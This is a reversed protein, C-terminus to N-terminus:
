DTKGDKWSERDWQAGSLRETSERERSRKETARAVAEDFCMSIGSNRDRRHDAGGDWTGRREGPGESDLKTGTEASEDEDRHTTETEAALEQHTQAGKDDHQRHQLQKRFTFATLKSTQPKPPVAPVAKANAAKRPSRKRPAKSIQDSTEEESEKSETQEHQIEDPRQVSTSKELDDGGEPSLDGEVSSETKINEDEESNGESSEELDEHREAKNKDDIEECEGSNKELDEKREAENKDQEGEKTHEEDVNESEESYEKLDQEGEKAHEEHIDEFEGGNKELDQKAEEKSGDKANEECNERNEELDEKREAENKDQEGEKTHEEDVRESEGTNGELDEQRKAEQEGEKTHEEDVNESEESNEKLDQEGEKAHEEHIDEFEGGNKELDQKAEEKSGDKANEECDGSNEELDEKREAENKDQEGEKTHEEDVRESEGSNGELDEQRKAEQEEEKAHEEDGEECEGSNKEPDLRKADEKPGDEPNEKCDESNEELDEQREAKNGEKPGDNAHEECERNNEALYEQREAENKDQEEEKAHEEDRRRKNEGFDEKRETTNVQKQEENGDSCEEVSGAKADEEVDDCKGEGTDTKNCEEGENEEMNRVVKMTEESKEDEVTQVQETKTENIIQTHEEPPQDADTIEASITVESNGHYGDADLVQQADEAPSLEPIPEPISTSDTETQDPEPSSPSSDPGFYTDEESAESEPNDEGILTHKDNEVDKSHREENKKEDMYVEDTKLADSSLHEESLLPEFAHESSDTLASAAPIADESQDISQADNNNEPLLANSQNSTHLDVNISTSLGATTQPSLWSLGQYDRCAPLSQCFMDEYESDKDSEDDDDAPSYEDDSSLSLAPMFPRSKFPLSHSKGSLPRHTFSPSISKASTTQCDNTCNQSPCSVAQNDKNKDEEEEYENEFPAEVSFEVPNAACSEMSDLFGFAEQFDLPLDPEPFEMDEYYHPSIPEQHLNGRMEMYDEETTEEQNQPQTDKVNEKMSEQNQSLNEKETEKGCPSDGKEPVNIEKRTIEAMDNGCDEQSEVYSNTEREREQVNDSKSQPNGDTSETKISKVDENEAEDGQLPQEKDNWGGHLVGLALGSTIHLPVTVSFPGSIHIGARRDAKSTMGPSRTVGQSVGEAGGGSQLTKHTGKTEARLTTIHDARKRTTPSHISHIHGGASAMGESSGSATSVVLPSLPKSDDVSYAGSSLSDMSKAPRLGTKEKDKPCYKNKKRPDQLRGGLNFISRWKRGKLSGKRKDTGDIIAHYPRMPLPGDGPSLNGTCQLPLSKFFPEDHSSLISPSPLSKRREVTLGSGPFLEAVHTLIFEVVISQVRVEMFAATGNFGTSEIDKSRLLNPAWVIALNRAHMNTQSAFTSMKVLHRMLYELTRHHLAPLDKLVEKIKVLREDELQIAVADAFRDYLEYTLLPNPLERFYAKCLSSVCHIDQLYLDKNLDPSGESDFESRLKQTNSSVGSLRYIGDVIGHKEIFESCSRLVQPIDQGTSNLHELLDCGFVKDRSGGKRRGRRM